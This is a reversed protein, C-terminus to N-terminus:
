FHLGDAQCKACRVLSEPHGEKNRRRDGRCLKCVGPQGNYQPRDDDSDGEDQSSSSTDDDSSDSSYIFFFYNLYIIEFLHQNIIGPTM